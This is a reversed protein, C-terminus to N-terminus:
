IMSAFAVKDEDSVNEVAIKYEDKFGLLHASKGYEEVRSIFPM